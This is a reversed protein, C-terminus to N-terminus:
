AGADTEADDWQCRFAADTARRQRDRGGHGSLVAGRRDAGARRRGPQAQWGSNAPGRFALARHGAACIAGGGGVRRREAGPHVERTRARLHRPLGALARNGAINAGVGTATFPLVVDGSLVYGAVGDQLLYAPQPFALPGTMAPPDLAIQPALGADGPNSWYIHWGPALQFHLALKVQGGPATNTESILSVTDRKSVFSNSQAGFALGPLLALLLLLLRM